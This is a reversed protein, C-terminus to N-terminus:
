RRVEQVPARLRRRNPPHRQKAPVGAGQRTVTVRFLQLCETDSFVEKRDEAGHREVAPEEDFVVVAWEAGIVCLRPPAGYRLGVWGADDDRMPEPLAAKAAPGADDAFAYQPTETPLVTAMYRGPYIADTSIDSGLKLVVTPM